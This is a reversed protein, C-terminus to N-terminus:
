ANPDHTGKTDDTATSRKLRAARMIPALRTVGWEHNCAFCHWEPSEETLPQRGFCLKEADLLAKVDMYNLPVGYFLEVVRPSGCAPCREPRPETQAPDKM